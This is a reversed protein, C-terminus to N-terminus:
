SPVPEGRIGDDDMRTDAQKDDVKIVGLTKLAQRGQACVKLVSKVVTGSLTINMANAVGSVNRVTGKKGSDSQGVKKRLSIHGIQM